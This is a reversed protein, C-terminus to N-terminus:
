KKTRYDWFVYPKGGTNDRVDVHTHADYLGIGTFGIYRAFEAIKEPSFGPVQIDAAKGLMHQSNKSGGVKTNWTPSRYGSTINVPCGVFDRLAQLKYVLEMDLLVEGRGEACVFESLRFNKALQIDGLVKFM